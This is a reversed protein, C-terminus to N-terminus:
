LAIKIHISELKRELVGRRVASGSRFPVRHGLVEVTEGLVVDAEDRRLECGTLAALLIVLMLLYHIKSLRVM